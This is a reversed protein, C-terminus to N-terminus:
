VRYLPDTATRGGNSVGDTWATGNWLRLQNRGTPDPAWHPGAATLAGPQMPIQPPVPQGYGYGYSMAPQVKPKLCAVIILGIVGLLLGLVIGETGRGKSNGIAYGLGACAVWILIVLPTM